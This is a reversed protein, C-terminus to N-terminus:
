SVNNKVGDASIEMRAAIQENTLELRLFALVERERPTLLEDTSLRTSDM